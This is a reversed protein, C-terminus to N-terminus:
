RTGRRAGVLGTLSFDTIHRAIAAIELATMAERRELRQLVPAAHKYFLIQGVISKASRDIRSPSAGRGALEGVISSLLLYLPRIRHVVQDLAATPDSLERTMLRGYCSEVDEDFIRELFARVFGYLRESAPSAPDVGGDPPHKELAKRYTQDLVAAYLGDKGGFHYNVAALNARARRIIERVTAARYGREAFVEGAAELLRRETLGEQAPTQRASSNLRM